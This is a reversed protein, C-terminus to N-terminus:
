ESEFEQSVRVNYPTETQELSTSVGHLAPMQGQAIQNDPIDRDGPTWSDGNYRTLVALRTAPALVAKM